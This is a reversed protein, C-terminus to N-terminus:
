VNRRQKLEAVLYSRNEALLCIFQFALKGPKACVHDALVAPASHARKSTPLNRGLIAIRNSTVSPCSTTCFRTPQESPQLFAPFERLEPNVRRWRLGAFAKFLPAPKFTSLSRRVARHVAIGM